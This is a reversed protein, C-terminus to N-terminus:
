SCFALVQTQLLILVLSPPQLDVHSNSLDELTLDFQSVRNVESRIFKEMVLLFLTKKSNNKGEVPRNSQREIVSPQEMADSTQDLWGVVM